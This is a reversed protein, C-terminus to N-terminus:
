SQYFEIPLGDPDSVFFFTKGTYEDRRIAEAPYNHKLFHARTAEVDDTTFALHRLGLAEPRSPRAPSDPFTFLELIYHSNMSLDVKYSRREERFVKREMKLGLLDVYFRLSTELDSCILAIHHIGKLEM